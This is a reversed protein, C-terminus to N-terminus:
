SSGTLRPNLREALTDGIVNFSLVTFALVLGPYIALWPAQVLYNRADKLMLGWSAEPPQTGVGLYSLSAETVISLAFVISCQVVVKGLINPIIHKFVIKIVPTGLARAAEVYGEGKIAMTEARVLRAFVPSSIIGLALMVQVLGYGLFSVVTIALLITPFSLISDMFLMLVSDLNRSGLGALLGITSGLFLSISVTVIGVILASRSGYIIRSLVDRGYNDTGLLNELTPAKFRKQLFQETPNYPAVLPAALAAGVLVLLFVVALYFLVKQSTRATKM